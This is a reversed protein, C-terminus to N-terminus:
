NQLLISVVIFFNNSAVNSKSPITVVALACSGFTISLLMSPLDTDVSVSEFLPLGNMM